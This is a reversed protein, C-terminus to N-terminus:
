LTRVPRGSSAGFGEIMAETGDIVSLRAKVDQLWSYNAETTEQGLAQEADKLEKILSHWQRHLTVLQKWTMLVDEPAAEPRAGWVNSNTIGTQIRAFLEWMGRASLAAAIAEADADGDHALLDLLAGKLKQTDAHRFEIGALEELHDHALWPHNVIAQLILAERRPVAARHGRHLPSSALQPSAVVYPEGGSLPARPRDAGGRGRAAGPRQSVGQRPPWGGSGRNRGFERRAKPWADGEFMRRLREGFERRYYKRVTDDGIAAVVEALRAEFAACREPTDFGGGETERMWLVSALPRAAGIVEAVAERGGSRVLDDPDQGEPLTAFKLSKGPACSRCRM